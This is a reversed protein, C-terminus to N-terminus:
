LDNPLSVDELQVMPCLLFLVFLTMMPIKQSRKISVLSHLYLMPIRSHLLDPPIELLSSKSM